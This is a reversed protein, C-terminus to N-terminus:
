SVVSKKVHLNCKACFVLLQVEEFHYGILPFLPTILIKIYGSQMANAYVLFYREEKLLPTELSLFWIKLIVTTIVGKNTNPLSWINETMLLEM